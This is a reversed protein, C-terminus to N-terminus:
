SRSTSAARLRTASTPDRKAELITLAPPKAGAFSADAPRFATRFRTGAKSLRSELASGTRAVVAVPVLRFIEQWNRWRPVQVLNDSGMLWVFRIKPFRRQLARLTDITFRTGLNKEVGTVIIRPHRSAGRAAELRKAFTTMGRPAKLPNQPSVLWWVYDLHLQKLAQESAHIHGRHAPNFSGGLLGVRLGDALPGPPAVWNTRLRGKKMGAATGRQIAPDAKRGRKAPAVSSM